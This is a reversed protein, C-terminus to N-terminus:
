MKQGMHNIGHTCYEAVKNFFGHVFRVTFRYWCIFHIIISSSQSMESLLPSIEINLNKLFLHLELINDELKMEGKDM